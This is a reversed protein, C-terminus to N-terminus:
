RARWVSSTVLSWSLTQLRSLRSLFLLWRRYTQWHDSQMVMQRLICAFARLSHTTRISAREALGVVFSIHMVHPSEPLARTGDSGKYVFSTHLLRWGGSKGCKALASPGKTAKDKGHPRESCSRASSKELCRQLRLYDRDHLSARSPPEACRAVSPHGISRTACGRTGGCETSSEGPAIQLGYGSILKRVWRSCPLISLPWFVPPLRSRTSRSAERSSEIKTRQLNPLIVLKGATQRLGCTELASNVDGMRRALTHECEDATGKELLSKEFVDDAFLTIRCSCEVDEHPSRGFIGGNKKTVSAQWTDIAGQFVRVLSTQLM